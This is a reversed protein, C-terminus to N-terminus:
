EAEQKGLEMLLRAVQYISAPISDIEVYEGPSHVGAGSPGFGELVVANGSLAAYGADTAGMVMPVIYFNRQMVEADISKALEAVALGRADAKFGPRLIEVSVSTDTGEILTSEAVQAQLAELLDQEAGDVTIRADGVAVALDPIQNFAKESVVNTWNLQAGAVDVDKTQLLQHALELVANKGKEPASGAHSATGTVELRVSAYAATGALVWAMGRTGDGGVEFSLVTDARSALDAILGGSGTSGTEEDPNFLVTLTEYDSWGLENLAKATHLIVAIGGKDDLVGPGFLRNEDRRVPMTELVGPEYITDMHAMLVVTQKGTGTKTGVVTDAGVDADSTHRETAFGLAQLRSELIDAVAALGAANGSGSAIAALSEITEVAAPGERAAAAFVAEDKGAAVVMTSLLFGFTPPVLAGLIASRFM